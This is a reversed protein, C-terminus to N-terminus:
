KLKNIINIIDTYYQDNYDCYYLKENTKKHMIYKDTTYKDRKDARAITYDALEGIIGINHKTLTGNQITDTYSDNKCNEIFHLKANKLENLKKNGWPMGQAIPKDGLLDLLMWAFAQLDDMYDQISTNHQMTAMYLPTGENPKRPEFNRVNNRNYIRETSGFDIIKINKETSDSYVINEHKIDLHLFNCKHMIQFAKISSIIDKKIRDVLKFKLGKALDIGLLESVLTYREIDGNCLPAIMGYEYPKPMPLDNCNKEFTSMTSHETTVQYGFQLKPALVQPIRPQVKVVVNQDKLNGTLVKGIYLLTDERLSLYNIIQINLNNRMKIIDNEFLQTIQMIAKLKNANTRILKIKEVKQDFSEPSKLDRKTNFPLYSLSQALTTKSKSAIVPAISPIIKTDVDGINTTGVSSVPSVPGAPGASSAPGNPSQSLDDKINGLLSNLNNVTLSKLIDKVSLIKLINEFFYSDNNKSFHKNLKEILQDKTLKSKPM